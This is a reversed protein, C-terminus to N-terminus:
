FDKQNWLIVELFNGKGYRHKGLYKKLIGSIIDFMWENLVRVIQIQSHSQTHQRWDSDPFSNVHM